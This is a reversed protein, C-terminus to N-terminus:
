SLIGSIIGYYSWHGLCIVKFPGFLYGRLLHLPGDLDLRLVLSVHLPCVVSVELGPSFLQTILTIINGVFGRYKREKKLVRADVSVQVCQRECAGVGTFKRVVCACVCEPQVVVLVTPHVLQVVAHVVGRYNYSTSGRVCVCVNMIIVLAVGVVCACAGSGRSM